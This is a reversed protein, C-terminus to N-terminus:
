VWEFNNSAAKEVTRIIAAGLNQSTGSEVQGHLETVTNIHM